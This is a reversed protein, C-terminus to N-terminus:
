KWSGPGQIALADSVGGKSFRRGEGGCGGNELDVEKKGVAVVM